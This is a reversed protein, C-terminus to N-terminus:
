PWRMRQWSATADRRAHEVLQRNGNGTSLRAIASVDVPVMSALAGSSVATRSGEPRAEEFDAQATNVHIQFMCHVGHRQM